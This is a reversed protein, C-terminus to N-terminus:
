LYAAAVGQVEPVRGARPFHGYEVIRAVSLDTGIWLMSQSINVVKVAVAWSKTAYIIQTVWRDGRGAWVVERQPNSQGYRIKIIAHEGPQLYADREPRVPLDLGVHDRDPGGCMTIAEEDPLGAAYMFDMGLLVELDEGINTLWVTMVYVVRMGLTLKVMATATIYTQVGGLGSVKIPDPLMQFKLKLRRALDLSIMSGSAGSDLLIRTRENNVTGHVMAVGHSDSSEHNEWWGYKQGPQLRFEVPLDDESSFPYIHDSETPEGQIM